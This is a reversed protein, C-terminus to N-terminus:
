KGGEGYVAEAWLTGSPSAAGALRAYIQTGVPLFLGDDRVKNAALDFMKFSNAALRLQDTQGDFSIYVDEVLTNNLSLVRLHDGVPAGLAAYTGTISAAPLERVPEFVVRTGFAM